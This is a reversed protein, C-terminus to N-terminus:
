QEVCLLGASGSLLPMKMLGVTSDSLLIPSPVMELADALELLNKGAAAALM